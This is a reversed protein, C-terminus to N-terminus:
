ADERFARDVVLGIHDPYNRRLVRLALTRLVPGHPSLQKPHHGCRGHQRDVGATPCRHEEKPRGYASFPDMERGATRWKARRVAGHHVRVGATRDDHVHM